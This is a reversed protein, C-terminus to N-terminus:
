ASSSRASSGITDRSFRRRSCIASADGQARRGGHRASRRVDCGGARRPWRRMLRTLEPWRERRSPWIARRSPCCRGCCPRRAGAARPRRHHLARALRLAPGIMRAGDLQRRLRRASHLRDDADGRVSASARFTSPRRAGGRQADRRRPRHRRHVAAPRADFVLRRVRDVLTLVAFAICAASCRRRPPRLSRRPHRRDAGGIMM